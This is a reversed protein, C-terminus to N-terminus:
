TSNTTTIAMAARIYWGSCSTGGDITTKLVGSDDVNIILNIKDRNSCANDSESYYLRRQQYNYQATALSFCIFLITLIYM